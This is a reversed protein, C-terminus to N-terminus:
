WVVWSASAVDIRIGSARVSRSFTSSSSPVTFFLEAVPEVGVADLGGLQVERGAPVLGEDELGALLLLRGDEDLLEIVDM